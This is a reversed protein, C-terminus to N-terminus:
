ASATPPRSRAWTSWLWASVIIALIALLLLIWGITHAASSGAPLGTPGAPPPPTVLVAGPIRPFWMAPAVSEGHSALLALAAGILALVGLTVIAALALPKRRHNRDVAAPPIVGRAVAWSTAFSRPDFASSGLVEEASVGEAEAERLDAELDAAMEDAVSDPVRLKKWQRRCQDVFDSV